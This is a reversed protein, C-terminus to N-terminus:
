MVMGAGATVCQGAVEGAVIEALFHLGVAQIPLHYMLDLELASAAVVAVGRRTLNRESASAAVAVGPLGPGPMDEVINLQGPLVEM